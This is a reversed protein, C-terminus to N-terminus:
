KKPPKHPTIFNVVFELQKTLTEIKGGLQIINVNILNIDEKMAKINDTVGGEGNIKEAIEKNFNENKAKVSQLSFYFFATVFALGLFGMAIIGQYKAEVTNSSFIAIFVSAFAELLKDM